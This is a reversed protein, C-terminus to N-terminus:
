NYNKITTALSKSELKESFEQKEAHTSIVFFKFNTKRIFILLQIKAYKFESIITMKLIECFTVIIFDSNIKVM